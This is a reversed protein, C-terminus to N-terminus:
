KDTVQDKQRSLYNIYGGLLALAQSILTRANECDKETIFGEDFSVILQDVLKNLSGRSHRCLRINDQYDYRGFGEAINHTTARATKKMNDVLAFREENPYNKVLETVYKRVETCAKWCELDEFNRFNKQSM